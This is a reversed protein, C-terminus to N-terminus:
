EGDKGFMAKMDQEERDLKMKYAELKDAKTLHKITVTCHARLANLQKASFSVGSLQASRASPKTAKLTLHCTKPQSANLNLSVVFLLLSLLKM